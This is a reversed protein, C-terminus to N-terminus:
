VGSSGQGSPNATHTLMWCRGAVQGAPSLPRKIILSQMQPQSKRGATALTNRQSFEGAHEEAPVSIAAKSPLQESVMRQTGRGLASKPNRSFCLPQEQGEYRTCLM